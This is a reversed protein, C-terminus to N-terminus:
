FAGPRRLRFFHRPIMRAVGSRHYGAPAAPGLRTRAFGAQRRGYGAFLATAHMASRRSGARRAAILIRELLPEIGTFGNRFAPLQPRQQPLGMPEHLLDHSCEGRGHVTDKSPERVHSSKRPAGQDYEVAVESDRDADQHQDPERGADDHHIGAKRLKGFGVPHARQLRNRPLCATPDRVPENRVVLRKVANM